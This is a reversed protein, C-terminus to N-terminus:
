FLAFNYFHFEISVTIAIISHNEGNKAYTVRYRSLKEEICAVDEPLFLPPYFESERITLLFVLDLTSNSNDVSKLLVGVSSITPLIGQSGLLINERRFVKRENYKISENYNYDKLTCLFCLKISIYTIFIVNVIVM